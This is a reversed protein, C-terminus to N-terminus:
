RLPAFFFVLFKADEANIVCWSDTGRCCIRGISQLPVLAATRTIEVLGSQTSYSHFLFVIFVGIGKIRKDPYPPVLAATGGVEM